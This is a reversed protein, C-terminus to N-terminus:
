AWARAASVGENTINRTVLWLDRGPLYAHDFLALPLGKQPSVVIWHL